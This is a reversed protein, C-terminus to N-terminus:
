RCGHKKPVGMQKTYLIGFADILYKRTDVFDVIRDVYGHRAANYAGSHKQEYDRAIMATDGPLDATLIQAAQKAHIIEINADAYAYVFDAGLGKPNMALYSSGYAHRLYFTVKPVTAKAFMSSLEALAWPLHREAHLSSEFGSTNILSLIPIDFADCFRIFSAAKRVGGSTMVPADEGELAQNGITGVTVGGLRIFGCSMEEHTGGRIPVFLHEDSIERCYAPIDDRKVDLDMAVRNLDDASGAVLGGERNSGPIISLLTRMDWIVQLASGIGDVSGVQTFQYDASANDCTEVDNGEIANPSQLFLKADDTMYIFDQLSAFVSLAGGCTGFIGMVQPIVGSAETSKRYLMAMSELADFSEQIRIGSSDILGVIPAGMQIALDYLAIIKKAHMEGISGGVVEGDQAYVFILSGDVLGHGTIVGDSPTDKPSLNYDTARAAIDAGIEVFSHDDVLAEIRERASFEM